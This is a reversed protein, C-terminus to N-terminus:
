LSLEERADKLYDTKDLHLKYPPYTYIEKKARSSLLAKLHSDDTHMLKERLHFLDDKLLDDELSFIAKDFIRHM